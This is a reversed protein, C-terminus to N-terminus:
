NKYWIIMIITFFLFHDVFYHYNISNENLWLFSLFLNVNLHIISAILFYILIQYRYYVFLLITSWVCFITIVVTHCFNRSCCIHLYSSFIFAGNLLCSGTHINWHLWLLIKGWKFTKIRFFYINLRNEYWTLKVIFLFHVIIHPIM